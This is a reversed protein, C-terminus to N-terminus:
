YCGGIREKCCAKEERARGSVKEELGRKQRKKEEKSHRQSRYKDDKAVFKGEDSMADFGNRSVQPVNSTDFKPQMM